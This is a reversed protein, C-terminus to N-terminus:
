SILVSCIIVSKRLGRKKGPYAIDPKGTAKKWHIRYGSLGIDRLAKRLMLEPETNKGKNASMVKSTNESLPIPARGDRIYSM